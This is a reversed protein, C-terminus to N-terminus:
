FLTDKPINVLCSNAVCNSFPIEKNNFYIKDTEIDFSDIFVSIVKHTDNQFNTTIGGINPLRNDTKKM